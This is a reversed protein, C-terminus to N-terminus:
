SDFTQQKDAADPSQDGARVAAAAAPETGHPM